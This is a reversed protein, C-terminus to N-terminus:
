KQLSLKMIMMLLWVHILKPFFPSTSYPILAFKLSQLLSINIGNSCPIFRLNFKFKKACPSFNRLMKDSKRGGIHSLILRYTSCLHIEVFLFLVFFYILCNVPSQFLGIISCSSSRDRRINWSYCLSSFRSWSISSWYRSLYRRNESFISRDEHCIVFVEAMGHIFWISGIEWWSLQFFLWAALRENSHISNRVGFYGTCFADEAITKIFANFLWVSKNWQDEESSEKGVYDGFSITAM